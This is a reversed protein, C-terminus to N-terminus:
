KWLMKLPINLRPPCCSLAMSSYRTRNPDKSGIERFHKKEYERYTWGKAELNDPAQAYSTNGPLFGFPQPADVVLTAAPWAPSPLCLAAIFVFRKM